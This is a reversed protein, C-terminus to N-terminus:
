TMFFYDVTDKLICYHETTVLVRFHHCGSVQKKIKNAVDPHVRVEEIMSEPHYIIKENFYKGIRLYRLNLPLYNLVQSFNDGFNIYVLSDPLFSVDSNFRYIISLFKLNPLDNPLSRDYETDMSLHTLTRPLSMIDKNFKGKLELLKMNKPLANVPQNFAGHIRLSLLESPLKEISQNFLSSLSLYLLQPPLNDIPQDFDHGISLHTINMPLKNVPLNFKDGLELWTVSNPLNDVSQNFSDGIRLHTICQPLDADIKHNFNHGLFLHTVKEPLEKVPGNWVGDLTLHTIETPLKKAFIDHKDTNIRLHTIHEPLGELSDGIYGRVSLHNLSRPLLRLPPIGGFPVDLTPELYLNKLTSPCSRLDFFHIQGKIKLSQIATYTDKKFYVFPMIIAERYYLCITLETLGPLKKNLENLLHQSTDRQICVKKFRYNFKYDREPFRDSYLCLISNREIEEKMAYHSGKDLIGLVKRWQFEIIKTGFGDSQTCCYLDGKIVDCLVILVKYVKQKHIEYEKAEAEKNIDVVSNSDYSPKIKKLFNGSIIEGDCIMSISAETEELELIEESSRERKRTFLPAGLM